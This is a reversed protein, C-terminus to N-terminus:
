SFLLSKGVFVNFINLGTDVERRFESCNIKNMFLKARNYKTIINYKCPM